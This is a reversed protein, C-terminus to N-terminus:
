PRTEGPNRLLLTMIERAPHMIVVKAEALPSEHCKETVKYACVLIHESLVFTLLTDSKKQSPQRFKSFLLSLGGTM